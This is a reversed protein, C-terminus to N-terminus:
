ESCGVEAYLIACIEFFDLGIDSEEDCTDHFPFSTLGVSM